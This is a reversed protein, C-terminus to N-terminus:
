RAKTEFYFEITYGTEKVLGYRKAIRYNSSYANLRKIQEFLESRFLELSHASKWKNCVRCTPMLNDIHDIDSLTLHNLFEPVKYKNGVHMLYNCKPVIHDVQMEKISIKEGCYTCHGDYKDFIIQRDSKKM